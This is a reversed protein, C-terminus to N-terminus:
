GNRIRRLIDENGYKKCISEFESGESIDINYLEILSIIDNFDKGKRYREGYKVAHLKMAIIHMAKPLIFETNFIYVKKGGSVIKEYTNKDAFLCDIYPMPSDATSEFRAYLETRIIQRYAAKELVSAITEFEDEFIMFDFDLTQRVMGLFNLAWGGVIIPTSISSANLSEGLIRITEKLSRM